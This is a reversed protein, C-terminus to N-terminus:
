LPTWEGAEFYEISTAGFGAGVEDLPEFEEEAREGCSKLAANGKFYVIDDDDLIRFRTIEDSKNPVGDAGSCGLYDGNDILDELIIWRM